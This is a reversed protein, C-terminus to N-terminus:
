TTQPSKENLNILVCRSHIAHILTTPDNWVCFVFRIIHSQKEMIRRLAQQCIITLLDANEVICLSLEQKRHSIQKIYERFGDVGGDFVADLVYVRGDFCKKGYENALKSKGCGTPGTIILHPCKGIYQDIM